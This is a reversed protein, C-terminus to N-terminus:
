ARCMMKLGTVRMCECLQVVDGTQPRTAQLHSLVEQFSNAVCPSPADITGTYGQSLLDSLKTLSQPDLCLLLGQTDRHIHGIKHVVWRVLPAVLRNLLVTIVRPLWARIVAIRVKNIAVKPSEPRLLECLQSSPVKQQFWSECVDKLSLRQAFTHIPLNENRKLNTVSRLNDCFRM